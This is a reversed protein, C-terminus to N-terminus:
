SFVPMKSLARMPREPPMSEATVQASAVAARPGSRTTPTVMGDSIEDSPETVSECVSASFKPMSNLSIGMLGATSANSSISASANAPVSGPTASSFMWDRARPTVSM